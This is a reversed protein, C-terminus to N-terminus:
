NTVNREASELVNQETENESHELLEAKNNMPPIKHASEKQHTFKEAKKTVEEAFGRLKYMGPGPTASYKFDKFRKGLGM